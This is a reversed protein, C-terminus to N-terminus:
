DLMCGLMAVSSFMTVTACDAAACVTEAALAIWSPPGCFRDLVYLWSILLLVRSIKRLWISGVAGSCLLLLVTM